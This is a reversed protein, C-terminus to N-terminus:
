TPAPASPVTAPAAPASESAVALGLQNRITEKRQRARSLIRDRIQEFSENGGSPPPPSTSSVIRRAVLLPSADRVSELQRDLPTQATQGLDPPIAEGDVHLPTLAVQAAAELTPEPVNGFWLRMMRSLDTTSVDIGLKYALADVAVRLEEATQYREGPEKALLKMVIADLEPPVDYRRTSPAAPAETGIAMITDEDNSRQYLRDLTLLEWLVVGLSFLDSRRDVPMDLAQEPSFYSTGQDGDTRRSTRGRARAMGFDVVKVIGDRSVMLNTPSVDGHVIGLPKDDDGVAEHAHHLGAAAGAAVTLVARVPIQIRKARAHLVLARLTEGNVFEMTFFYSGGLKGVDFVQAVNEHELRSTLQAEELFTRAVDIESAVEPRLRKLAVWKEGEGAARALFIEAMAGQALRAVIDYSGKAPVVELSPVVRGNYGRKAPPEGWGPV